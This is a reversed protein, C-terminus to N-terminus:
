LRPNLIVKLSEEARTMLAFGDQARELPLRHTIMSAVDVRRSSILDLAALMDSPPGAYSHVLTIEDSWLDHLPVPVSTGPAVPAFLLIAGGRDVSSFAQRIASPAATCVLVREALRGDNGERIRAPVDEGADLVLDAGFRRAMERRFPSPDVAFIRGVGLARALQVQLIGSVGSGIVAVSEGPSVGTKRQARVVCALPEVFSGEEFSLADPLRFTGCEVNEPPLRIFEAFGGPDFHTSRLMECASHRDTLCYRCTNCPVHHTAVIRDGVHFARVGEGVQEVAGAVEHGLVLPARRIRYWEMVDSGCLGSAEVRLLIEGANLAPRPREEIRVDRNHHYVAVKV